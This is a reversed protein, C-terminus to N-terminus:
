SYKKRCMEVRRWFNYMPINFRFVNFLLLCLDRREFPKNVAVTKYIITLLKRYPFTDTNYRRMGYQFIRNKFVRAKGNKNIRTLTQKDREPHIM